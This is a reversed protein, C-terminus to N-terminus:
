GKSPYLYTPMFLHLLNFYQQDNTLPCIVLLLSLLYVQKYDYRSLKLDAGRESM